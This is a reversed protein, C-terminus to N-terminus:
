VKLIKRVQEFVGDIPKEGDVVYWPGFVNEKALHEYFHAIRTLFARDSEFRDLSNKEKLKREMSIDPSVKLFIIYDPKPIGFMEAFKLANETKFGEMGQYAISSTFYRDAIVTKGQKLWARIKPVDHMLSAGFLLFQVDVSFEFEKHLFKHILQGIPNDYNPDCIWEADVGKTKLYELLKKSQTETGAGDIGELAYLRGIM